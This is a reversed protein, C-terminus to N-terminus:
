GYLQRYVAACGAAAAAAAGDYAVDGAHSRRVVGPSYFHFARKPSRLYISISLYLGILSYRIRIKLLGRLEIHRRDSLPVETLM